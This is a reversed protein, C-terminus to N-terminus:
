EGLLESVPARTATMTPIISTALSVSILIAFAAAVSLFDIGQLGYLLHAYVRTMGLSFLIGFFGGLTVAGMEGKVMLFLV